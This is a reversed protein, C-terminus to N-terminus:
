LWGLRQCRLVGHRKLQLGRSYRWRGRPSVCCGRAWAKECVTGDKKHGMICYDGEWWLAKKSLKWGGSYAGLGDQRVDKRPLREEFSKNRILYGQQPRRRPM